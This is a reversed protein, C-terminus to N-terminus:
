LAELDERLRTLLRASPMAFNQIWREHIRQIPAVDLYNWRSRGEKKSFILRATELVGLHQMVTTRDLWPLREVLEGTTRPADRLLDLIKRRDPGALAKFVLDDRDPAQPRKKRRKAM